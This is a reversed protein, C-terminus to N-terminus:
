AGRVSRCGAVKVIAGAGLRKWELGLATEEVKGDGELRVNMGVESILTAVTVGDVVGKAKEKAESTIFIGAELEMELGDSRAGLLNVGLMLNLMKTALAKPKKYTNLPSNREL